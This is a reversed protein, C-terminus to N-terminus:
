YSDENPFKNTNKVSRSIEKKIDKSKSKPGVTGNQDLM